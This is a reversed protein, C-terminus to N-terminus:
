KKQNIHLKIQKEMMKQQLDQYYNKVKKEKTIYTNLFIFKRRHIIKVQVEHMNIDHARMINVKLINELTM